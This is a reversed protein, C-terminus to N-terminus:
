ALVPGRTVNLLGVDMRTERGVIAFQHEGAISGTVAVRGHDSEGM